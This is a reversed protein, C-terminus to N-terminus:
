EGEVTINWGAAVGTEAIFRVPVELAYRAAGQSPYSPCPDAECPPMTGGSVWRGAADFFLIDLPILTNRMWFSRPSEEPFIFLMGEGELLAERLMLGRAHAEPDDAIEALIEISNGSNGKLSIQRRKLGSLPHPSATEASSGVTQSAGTAGTGSPSSEQFQCGFLSLALATVLLGEVGCLVPGYGSVRLRKRIM